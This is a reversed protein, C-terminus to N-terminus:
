ATSTLMSKIMCDAIATEFKSPDNSNLIEKFGEKFEKIGQLTLSYLAKYLRDAQEPNFGMSCASSIVQTMLSLTSGDAHHEKDLQIGANTM